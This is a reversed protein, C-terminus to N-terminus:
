GHQPRRASGDVSDNLAPGDVGIAGFVDHGVPQGVVTSVPVSARTLGHENAQDYLLPAKAMM